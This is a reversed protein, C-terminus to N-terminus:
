TEKESQNILHKLALDAGLTLDNAVGYAFLFVEAKTKLHNYQSFLQISLMIEDRMQHRLLAPKLPSIGHFLLQDKCFFKYETEGAPGDEERIIKLDFDLPLKLNTM